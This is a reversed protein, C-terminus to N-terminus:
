LCKLKLPILPLSLFVGEVPCGAWLQAHARLPIVDQGGPDYTAVLGSLWMPWPQASNKIYSPSFNDANLELKLIRNNKLEYKILFTLLFTSPLLWVNM